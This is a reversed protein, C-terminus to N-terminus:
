NGTGAGRPSAPAGPACALPVATAAAAPTPPFCVLDAPRGPLARPLLPSLHAFDTSAARRVAETTSTELPGAGRLAAALAAVTAPDPARRAAADASAVLAPVDM